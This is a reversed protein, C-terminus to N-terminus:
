GEAKLRRRYLLAAGLIALIAFALYLSYDDILRSATQWQDGIIYGLGGFLIFWTARGALTAALFRQFPYRSSGAILSIPVDLTTLIVRSLYVALGAHRQFRGLAQNWFRARRESLIRQAWDWGSRGVTYSFMDGLVTGAYGWIATSQWDILGERALAGSALLLPTTPTPLGMSSTLLALALALPGYNALADLFFQTVEQGIM